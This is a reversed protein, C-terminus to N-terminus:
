EAHKNDIQLLKQLAQSQENDVFRTLSNPKLLPDLPTCPEISLDSSVESVSSVFRSWDQWDPHTKPPCSSDDLEGARNVISTIVSV